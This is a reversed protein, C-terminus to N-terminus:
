KKARKAKRIYRDIEMAAAQAREEPTSATGYAYAAKESWGDNPIGTFLADAERETLGLIKRATDSINVHKGHPGVIWSSDEDFKVKHGEMVCANGALCGLTGCPPKQRQFQESDQPYFWGSQLYRRPEELIYAKLKELKKIKM